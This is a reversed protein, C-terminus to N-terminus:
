YPKSTGQLLWMKSWASNNSVDDGKYQTPELKDIAETSNSNNDIENIHYYFRLPLAPRKSAPGTQLEPLGTRRYDFWAETASSWSAIWKQTIIDEFSGYAASGSIYDAYSDGVGWANLSQKIGENYYLEASGSVWGKSAAEAIIFNVEAASILRAQLLDGSAEKYIDNLQSVHLNYSGQNVNESLNYAAGFTMATPLGVYNKDYNVPYGVTNVYSDVTAQSVHREGTNEDVYDTVDLVIPQEIKNAWIGLRPDDLAQMAEVLTAGMKIRFYSGQPDTDFKTNTPWSDNNTNGVYAMNADDEASLILPFQSSNSLIRKIGQEAIGPEKASLRMYYRLSLSNAFKRWKAVDGGYLIDQAENISFYSDQSKSLLGNAIELDAQIGEYITKQDDFTADFFEAGEDGRLANTYPADGWLDTLLGFLYSKMILGVGHHFDLNDIEAKEILTKDNILLSYYNNWSHSDNGWDYANHGSSWGDKQTHQMVGALDGFGLSVVTKGVGNIVTPVLLNPDVNDSGIKDPNENLEELGHCSVLVLLGLVVITFKNKIQNM